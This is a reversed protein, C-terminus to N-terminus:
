QNDKEWCRAPDTTSTSSKRKELIKHGQQLLKFRQQTHWLGNLSVAIHCSYLVSSKIQRALYVACHWRVCVWVSMDPDVCVCVCLSAHPQSHHYLVQTLQSRDTQSKLNQNSPVFPGSACICRVHASNCHGRWMYWREMDQSLIHSLPLSLPLLSFMFMWLPPPKSFERPKYPLLHVM